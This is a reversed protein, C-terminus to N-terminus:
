CDLLFVAMSQLLLPLGFGEEPPATKRPSADMGVCALAGGQVYGGVVTMRVPASSLHFFDFWKAIPHRVPRLFPRHNEFLVLIYSSGGRWRVRLCTTAGATHYDALISLALIVSIVSFGVVLGSFGSKRVSLGSPTPSYLAM